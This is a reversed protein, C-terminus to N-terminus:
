LVNLMASPGGLDGIETVTMPWGAFLIASVFGAQTENNNDTFLHFTDQLAWRKDTQSGQGVLQGDIFMKYHGALEPAAYMVLAIRHWSNPPLSGFYGRG